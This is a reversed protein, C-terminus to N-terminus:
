LRVSNATLTACEELQVKVSSNWAREAARQWGVTETHQGVCNTHTHAAISACEPETRWRWTRSQVVAVVQGGWDCVCVCGYKDTLSFFNSFETENLKKPEVDSGYVAKVMMLIMMMIIVRSDTNIARTQLTCVTQMGPRGSERWWRCMGRCKSEDFKKWNNSLLTHLGSFIQFVWFSWQWLKWKSGAVSHKRLFSFTTSCYTRVQSSLTTWTPVISKHLRKGVGTERAAIMQSNLLNPHTM